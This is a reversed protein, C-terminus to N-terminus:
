LDEIKFPADDEEEEEEDTEDGEDDEESEEEDAEDEEEYEEDEEIEALIDDLGEDDDEDDGCVDTGLLRQLDAENMGLMEAERRLTEVRADRAALAAASPAGGAAAAGAALVVNDGDDEDDPATARRESSAGSEGDEDGKTSLSALRLRLPRGEEVCRLAAELPKGSSKEALLCVRVLTGESPPASLPPSSKLDLEGTLGPGLFVQVKKSNAPAEEASAMVTGRLVKEAESSGSGGSFLRTLQKVARKVLRESKIDPLAVAEAASRVHAKRSTAAASPSSSPVAAAAAVAASTPAAGAEKVRELLQGATLPQKPQQQEQKQQPEEEKQQQQPPQEHAAAAQALPSSAGSGALTLGLAGAQKRAHAVVARDLLMGRLLVMPFPFSPSSSPTPLTTTTTVLEELLLPSFRDYIARVNTHPRVYWVASSGSGARRRRKQKVEAQENEKNWQNIAAVARAGKGAPGGGGSGVGLLEKDLESFLVV